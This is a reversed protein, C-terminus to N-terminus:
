SGYGARYGQEYGQRYAQRYANKDGLGSNYGRDANKYNDMSTARYSRNTNRDRQGDILGDRYGIQAAQNGVSSGGFYGNRYYGNNGYYGYQGRNRDWDPYGYRGRHRDWDRDHDRDHRFRDWDHDRDHRYRDWDRRDRDHDRRDHDRDHDRDRRVVEDRDHNRHLWDQGWAAGTTGLILAAVLAIWPRKM